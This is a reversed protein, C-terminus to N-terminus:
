IYSVIKERKCLRRNAKEFPEEDKHNPNNLYNDYDNSESDDKMYQPSEGPELIINTMKKNSDEDEKFLKISITRKQSRAGTQVKRNTSRPTITANKHESILSDSGKKPILSDLTVKRLATNSTDTNNHNSNILQIEEEKDNKTIM